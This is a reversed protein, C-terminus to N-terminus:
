YIDFYDFLDHASKFHSHRLHNNKKHEARKQFSTGHHRKAKDVYVAHSSDQTKNNVHKVVYKELDYWSYEKANTTEGWFAAVLVLVLVIFLSKM